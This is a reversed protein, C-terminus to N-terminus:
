PSPNITYPKPKVRNPKPDLNSPQPVHEYTGFFFIETIASEFRFRFVKFRKLSGSTSALALTQGHSDAIHWMRDVAQLVKSALPDAHGITIM